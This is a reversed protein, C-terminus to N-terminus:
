GCLSDTVVTGDLKALVNKAVEESAVVTVRGNVVYVEAFSM